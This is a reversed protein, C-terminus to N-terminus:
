RPLTLRLLLARDDFPPPVPEPRTGMTLAYYENGIVRAEFV